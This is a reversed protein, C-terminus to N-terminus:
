IVVQEGIIMFLLAWMFWEKSLQYEPPRGSLMNLERVAEKDSIFLEAAKELDNMDIRIEAM